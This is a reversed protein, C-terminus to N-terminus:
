LVMDQGLHESWPTRVLTNQGSAAVEDTEIFNLRCAPFTLEPVGVDYTILRVSINDLVEQIEDM